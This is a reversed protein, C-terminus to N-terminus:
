KNIQKLVAYYSFASNIITTFTGLDVGFYGFATMKLEKKTNEMMITVATKLEKDGKIWDSSFLGDSLKSSAFKLESGFYCPLFIELIMSFMFQFAILFM